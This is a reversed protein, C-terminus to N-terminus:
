IAEITFSTIGRSLLADKIAEGDAISADPVTVRLGQQEIIEVPEMIWPVGIAKREGSETQVILYDYDMANVPTGEPLTSHINSHIASVDDGTLAATLGHEVIGMVTVRSYVDPMLKTHLKFSVVQGNKLGYVKAM